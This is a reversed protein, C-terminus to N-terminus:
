AAGNREDTLGAVEDAVHKLSKGRTDIVHTAAERYLSERRGYLSRFAQEDAALPRKGNRARSFATAIDEDLLVVFPERKLRDRVGKSTVAGGGLSVVTGANSAGAVDLVRLVVLEEARRFAEEGEREFMQEISMGTEHEVLNDVDFFEWGMYSSVRRGVATKGSGMFGILILTPAM